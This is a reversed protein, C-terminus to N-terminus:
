FSKLSGPPFDWEPTRLGTGGPNRYWPNISEDSKLIQIEQAPMYSQALLFIKGTVRPSEAVDVVIVAHGPSGGQIFIDGIAIEEVSKRSLQRSLSLTGAYGYIFLLYEEFVPRSVGRRGTRVWRVSNNKVRPRYGDMWRSFPADMGNTISFSIESYRKASYLWEGRLKMIADACQLLDMDGVPLDVVSEYVDRTKIRGDFYHVKEGYKKLPLNRLYEAFSGSEVARRSFGDPARFRAGVTMGSPDILSSQACADLAALCLLVPLLVSKM